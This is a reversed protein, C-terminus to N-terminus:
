VEEDKFQKTEQAAQVEQDLLQKPEEIAQVEGDRVQKLEQVQVEKDIPEKKQEIETQTEGTALEM